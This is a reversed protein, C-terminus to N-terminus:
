SDTQWWTHSQTHTLMHTLCKSRNAYEYFRKAEEINALDVDSESDCKKLEQQLTVSANYTRFVKASLGPMLDKLYRNLSGTKLLMAHSACVCRCVRVCVCVRFGRVSVTEFLNQNDSKNKLFHKMNRYALADLTVTNLYRYPHIIM